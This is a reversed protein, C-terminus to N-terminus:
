GDQDIRLRPLNKDLIDAAVMSFNSRRRIATLELRDFVAGRIYGDAQPITLVVFNTSM